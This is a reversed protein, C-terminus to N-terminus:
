GPLWGGGIGNHKLGTQPIVLDRWGEQGFDVSSLFFTIEPIIQILTTDGSTGLCREPAANAAPRHGRVAPRLVVLRRRELGRGESGFPM